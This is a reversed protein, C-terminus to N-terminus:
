RPFLQVLDYYELFFNKDPALKKNVFISQVKGPSVGVYPLEINITSNDRKKPIYYDKTKSDRIVVIPYIDTGSQQPTVMPIQIKVYPTWEGPKINQIIPITTTNVVVIPDPKTADYYYELVDINIDVPAPGGKDDVYFNVTYDDGQPNPYSYENGFKIGDFYFKPVTNQKDNINFKQRYVMKGTSKNRLEMNIEDTVFALQNQAGLTKVQGYYDRIKVGDFYQELTDGMVFGSVSFNESIAKIKPIIHTGDKKCASLLLMPLIVALYITKFTKIM